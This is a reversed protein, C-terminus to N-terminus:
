TPHTPMCAKPSVVLQRGFMDTFLDTLMGARVGLRGLAIATNFVAGGPHPVFGDPGYVNLAPIMDILAEGCCLIM